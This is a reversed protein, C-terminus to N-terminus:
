KPNCKLNSQVNEPFDFTIFNRCYFICVVMVGGLGPLVPFASLMYVPKGYLIIQLLHIVKFCLFHLLIIPMTHYGVYSIAQSIIRQKEIYKALSYLLSWGCLAAIIGGILKGTGGQLSEVGLLNCLLLGAISIVLRVWVSIRFQYSKVMYGIEFLIYSTLVRELNSKELFAIDLKALCAGLWWLIFGILIHEFFLHRKHIKLLIWEIVAYLITTFFLVRLFWCAGGLETGGMFLFTKMVQGIQQKLSQNFHLTGENVIEPFTNTYINLTIFVNNLLNFIANCIVYPVWLSKLRKIVLKKLDNMSQSYSLNFCYGSIMVFIPMHFMYIFEKAMSDIGSHGVVMLIIALGKMIDLTLNRKM